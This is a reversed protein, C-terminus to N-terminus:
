DGSAFDPSLSPAAALLRVMEATRVRCEAVWTKWEEMVWKLSALVKRCRRFPLPGINFPWRRGSKV